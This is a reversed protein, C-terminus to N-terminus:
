AATALFVLELALIFLLILLILLSVMHHETNMLFNSMVAVFHQMVFTYSAELVIEQNGVAVKFSKTCVYVGGTHLLGM